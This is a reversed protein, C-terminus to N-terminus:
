YQELNKLKRYFNATEQAVREWSYRRAEKRAAISIDKSSAHDDMAQLCANTMAAVNGTECLFGNTGSSIVDRMGGTESCFVILGRAMAEIFAKGFGEFFSPFLFIGHKDYISLLDNQSRWHCFNIRCILDRPFLNRAEAHHQEACVWTFTSKQRLRLIKSVAEVLIPTGKFFAYQGVHLLRNLRVESMPIAPKEKYLKPPALPIVAIREVSVGHHRVLYNRCRTASVIHGQAHVTILKQSRKLLPSLANSALKKLISRDDSRYLSSWKRLDADVAGEFGHSRHIFIASNHKQRLTKAALYGYPQSVQVIDYRSQSLQRLMESRYTLPLEFINYLNPHSINHSLDDNWVSDIDHGLDRLESITQVLTGAAGSDLTPKVNAIFLIRM